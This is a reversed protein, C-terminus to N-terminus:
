QPSIVDGPKQGPKCPGLWKADMTITSSGTGQSTRTKVTGKYASDLSGQLLYDMYVTLSETVKCETQISVKDGSRKVVPVKCGSDDADQKTLNDSKKDVCELTPGMDPMGQMHSRIEWLGSKRKPMDAASADTVVFSILCLGAVFLSTKLTMNM